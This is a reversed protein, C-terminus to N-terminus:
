QIRWVFKEGWNGRNDDEVIIVELTLLDSSTRMTRCARGKREIVRFVRGVPETIHLSGYDNSSVHEAVLVNREGTFAYDRVAVEENEVRAPQEGVLVRMESLATDMSAHTRVVLDFCVQDAGINAIRAEDLLASRTVEPPAQETPSGPRIPASMYNTIRTREPVRVDAVSVVQERSRYACASFLLAVVILHIKM